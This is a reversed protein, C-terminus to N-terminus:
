ATSLKTSAELRYPLMARLTDGLLCCALLSDHRPFLVPAAVTFFASLAVRCCEHLLHGICHQDEAGEPKRYEARLHDVTSTPVARLTPVGQRHVCRNATAELVLTLSSGAIVFHDGPLAAISGAGIPSSICPM